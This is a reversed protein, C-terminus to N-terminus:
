ATERPHPLSALFHRHDVDQDPSRIKEVLLNVSMNVKYYGTLNGGRIPFPLGKDGKPMSVQKAWWEGKHDNNREWADV